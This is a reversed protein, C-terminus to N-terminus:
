PETGAQARLRALADVPITRIAAADRNEQLVRAYVEDRHVQVARPATIGLRVQGDKIEVVVVRVDAGIAIGEGQKRTLVLM